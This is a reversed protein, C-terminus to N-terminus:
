SYKVFEERERLLDMNSIIEKVYEDLTVAKCKMRKQFLCVKCTRLNMCKSCESEMQRFIETYKKALDDQDWIVSHKQLDIYGISFDYGIHECLHLRGDASVFIKNTFPMCIGPLIKHNFEYFLDVWSNVSMGLIKYFFAPINKLIKDLHIYEDKSIINKLSSYDGISKRYIKKFETLKSKNVSDIALESIQPIKQLKDNFFLLVDEVSNKSHIVSNFSINNKYYEPYINRIMEINKLVRDFVNVGDKTVRYGSNQYNGDLSIMLSFDNRVFFNIYRDLLIGNTTLIYEFHFSECIKSESYKVIKEILDYKLLPEGGYFGLVIKKAVSKNSNQSLQLCLNDIFCYAFDINLDLSHDNGHHNYLDGYCCYVCDLNCKQTLEFSIHKVECLSNEIELSEVHPKFESKVPDFYKNDILFFLKKINKDIEIESFTERWYSDEAVIGKELYVKIMASLLKNIYLIKKRTFSYFYDNGKTDTFVFSNM